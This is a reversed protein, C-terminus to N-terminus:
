DDMKSKNYEELMQQKVLKKMVKDLANKPLDDVFIVGGRLRRSDM